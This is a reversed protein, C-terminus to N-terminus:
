EGTAQSVTVSEEAETDPIRCGLVSIALATWGTSGVPLNWISTGSVTIKWGHFWLSLFICFQHQHQNGAPPQTHEWGWIWKVIRHAGLAM